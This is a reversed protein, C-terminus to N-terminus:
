ASTGSAAARFQRRLRKKVAERKVPNLRDFFLKGDLHDIEHALVRALMGRGELVIERGALNRARVRVWEPRVVKEYTGPISLCGEEEIREGEASEIVPNILVHVQAPDKGVSLDVVALRLDVGVQPAALGGGPAAHVTELMDAALRRVDEDIGGIPRCKKRLVPDPYTRIELVAM